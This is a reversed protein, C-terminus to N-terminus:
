AVRFGKERVQEVQAFAARLEEFWDAHSEAVERVCWALAESRSRAVGADILTDLVQREALKLRTMAPVGLTTFLWEAGDARVGWSVKRGYRQEAARAIEMRAARTSERFRKVLLEAGTGHDDPAQDAEGEAAGAEPTVPLTGVLLIEDDDATIQVPESFWDDPIRQAFWDRTTERVM